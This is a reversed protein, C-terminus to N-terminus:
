LTTTVALWYVGILQILSQQGRGVSGWSPTTTM